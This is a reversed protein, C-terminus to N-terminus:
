IMLHLKNYRKYQKVKIWKNHNSFKNKNNNKNNNHSNNHSNDLKHKNM